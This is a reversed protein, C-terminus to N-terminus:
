AHRNNVAKKQLYVMRAGWREDDNQAFIIESYAKRLELRRRKKLFASLVYQQPDFLNPQAMHTDIREILDITHYFLSLPIQVTKEAM